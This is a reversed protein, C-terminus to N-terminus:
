DEVYDCQHKAIQVLALVQNLEDSQRDLEVMLVDVPPSDYDGIVRNLRERGYILFVSQTATDRGFIIEVDELIESADLGVLTGFCDGCLAEISVCAIDM